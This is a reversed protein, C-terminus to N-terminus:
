YSIDHILIEYNLLKVAPCSGGGGGGGGKQILGHLFLVFVFVFVLYCSKILWGINQLYKSVQPSCM